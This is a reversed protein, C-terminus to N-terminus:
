SGVYCAVGNSRTMQYEIWLRLGRELDLGPCFGLEVEAKRADALNHPPEGPSPFAELPHLRTGLITNLTEVLELSTTPRGRAINYVRGAARPAAAALLTAHVVDGVALLDQQALLGGSLVPRHGELMEKVLRALAAAYPSAAPQRPGFVRFYRLRVTELGYLGTFGVCQQEGTLKAVAYPSLPQTVEDERRPFGRPPGYVCASSAYLLRKVNAERAAVLVHLTGTAGCHHAAMPDALSAAGPPPGALHFVYDVGAMVERVAPLDLVSGRVLEIRDEVEALNELHGTSFDDLVRVVQGRALLEEVLHSGIFGAGGTVLCVAM